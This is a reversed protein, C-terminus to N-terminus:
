FGTEWGLISVTQQYAQPGSPNSYGYYIALATTVPLAQTFILAYKTGTSAYVPISILASASLHSLNLFASAATGGGEFALSTLSIVTAAKSPVFNAYSATTPFAGTVLNAIIQQANFTFKNAVLMGQYFQASGNLKHNMIPAFETYGTPGTAFNNMSAVVSLGGSGNPVYFLNPEAYAAFAGAQDRGGLGQITIDVTKTGVGTYTKTKGTTSITTVRSATVDFKTTPTGANFTGSLGTILPVANLATDPAAINDARLISLYARSLGSDLASSGDMRMVITTLTSYASSVITGYATGATVNFQVRRGVHFEATRNGALNFTTANVYLPSLSNTVWQLTASGVPNGGPTVGDHVRLSNDDTNVTVERASGTFVNHEDTTGGRLKLVTAM